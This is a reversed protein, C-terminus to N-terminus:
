ENVTRNQLLPLYETWQRRRQARVDALMSRSEDLASRGFAPLRWSTSMASKVEAVIDLRQDAAPDVIEFTKDYFLEPRHLDRLLAQPTCEKLDDILAEPIEVERPDAISAVRDLMAHNFFAVETEIALEVTPKFVIPSPRGDTRARLADLLTDDVADLARKRREVVEVMEADEAPGPQKGEDILQEASPMGFWRELEAQTAPDIPVKGGDLLEKVTPDDDRPAM